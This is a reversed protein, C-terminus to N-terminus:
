PQRFNLYLVGLPKQRYKMRLALGVFSRIGELRTFTSHYEPMAELDEIVLVDRRLVEQTIGKPRPQEFSVKEELLNGVITLPAIFSGSIPNIAFIVCDDANFFTQATQAIHQLISTLDGPEGTIRELVELMKRVKHLSQAKM